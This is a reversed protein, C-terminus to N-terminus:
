AHGDLSDIVEVERYVDFGIRSITTELSEDKRRRVAIVPTGRMEGTAHREIEDSWVWDAM